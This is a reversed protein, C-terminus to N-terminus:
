EFCSLQRFFSLQRPSSGGARQRMSEGGDLGARRIDGCPSYLVYQLINAHAMSHGPRLDLADDALNSRAGDVSRHILADDAGILHEVQDRLTPLRRDGGSSSFWRRYVKSNHVTKVFPKRCLPDLGMYLFSYLSLTVLSLM